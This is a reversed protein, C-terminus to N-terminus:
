RATTRDGSTLIAHLARFCLRRPVRPLGRTVGSRRSHGRISPVEPAAFRPRRRPLDHPAARPRSAPEDRAGVRSVAPRRCSTDRAWVPRPLPMRRSRNRLHRQVANSTRGQGLTVRSADESLLRGGPSAAIAAVCEVNRAMRAPSQEHPSRPDSLGKTRARLGDRNCFSELSTRGAGLRRISPSSPDLWSRALPERHVPM